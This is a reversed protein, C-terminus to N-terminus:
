SKNNTNISLQAATVQIPNIKFKQIWKYEIAWILAVNIQGMKM